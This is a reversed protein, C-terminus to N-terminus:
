IFKHKPKFVFKLSKSNWIYLFSAVILTSIGVAVLWPSQPHQNCQIHVEYAGEREESFWFLLFFVFFSLTAISISEYM